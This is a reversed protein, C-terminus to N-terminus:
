NYTIGASWDSDLYAVDASKAMIKVTYNGSEVTSVDIAEGNVVSTSGALKNGQYFGAVYSGVGVTNPDTVTVIGNADIAISPTQLKTQTLTNVAVDSLIFSGSNNFYIRITAGQPNGQWDANEEIHIFNVTVNNIGVKLSVKEGNIDVVCAVTSNIKLTLTYPNGPTLTSYHYYLHAAQDYYNAGATITFSFHIEGTSTTYGEDVRVTSGNWSQDHWEYWVDPDVYSDHEGGNPLPTIKVSNKVEYNEGGTIANWESSAYEGTKPVARIKLTYFGNEIAMDSFSGDKLIATYGKCEGNEDFFGVEYKSVKDEDAYEAITITKDEGTGELTASPADLAPPTYKEISVVEFQFDVEGSWDFTATPDGFMITITAGSAPQEFFVKLTNEGVTLAYPEGCVLITGEKITTVKMVLKLSQGAEYTAYHRYIQTSDFKWGLGASKYTVVGNAYSAESAYSGDAAVAFYTWRTSSYTTTMELDYEINVSSVTYQTTAESWASDLYGPIGATKVKVVYTGVTEIVMPDIDGTKATFSQVYAPEADEANNFFGVLYEKVGATNSDDTITVTKENISIGTPADLTPPTYDQWDLDEIKIIFEAAAINNDPTIYVMNENILQDYYVEFATEEGAVLAVTTDFISVTGDVSSTIKGSFATWGTKATSDKKQGLQVDGKNWNVNGGFEFTVIGERVESTIIEPSRNDKDSLYYWWEGAKAAGAGEVIAEHEATDIVHVNITGSGYATKVTLATDGERKGTVVGSNTVTAITPDDSEWSTITDGDSAIATIKVPEGNRDVEVTTITNGSADRFTFTPKTKVTVVCTASVKSN